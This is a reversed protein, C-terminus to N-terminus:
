QIQLQRSRILRIIGKQIDQQKM